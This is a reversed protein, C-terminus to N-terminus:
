ITLVSYLNLRKAKSRLESLRSQRRNMFYQPFKIKCPFLVTVNQNFLMKYTLTTLFVAIISLTYTFPQNNLQKAAITVRGAL